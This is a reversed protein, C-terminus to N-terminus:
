ARWCISCCPSSPRGAEAIQQGAAHAGSGPAITFEIAEIRASSPSSRGTCLIAQAPWRAWFLLIFIKKVFAMTPVSLPRNDVFRLKGTRAPLALTMNQAADSAIQEVDSYHARLSLAKISLDFFNHRQFSNYRGLRLGQISGTPRRSDGDGILAQDCQVAFLGGMEQVTLQGVVDLVQRGAFGAQGAVARGFAPQQGGEKHRLSLV